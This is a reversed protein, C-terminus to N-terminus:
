KEWPKKKMLRKIRMGYNTVYRADLTNYVSAIEEDFINLITIIM